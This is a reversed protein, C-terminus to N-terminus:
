FPPRPLPFSELSKSLDTRARVPDLRRRRREGARGEPQDDWLHLLGEGVPSLRYLVRRGERHSDVLGAQRLVALHYSVSSAATGLLTALGTTSRPVLLSGLLSARERGLLVELGREPDPPLWEWLPATGRAQYAVVPIGEQTTGAAVDPWAFVSAVLVVGRGGADITRDEAGAVELGQRDWRLGPHLDDLLGDVGGMVQRHAGHLVEGELLARVAPWRQALAADWYAQLEGAVRDVAQASGDVFPQLAVPPRRGLSGFRRHVAEGALAPASERWRQLEQGITRGPEEPAPLMLEFAMGTLLLATLTRLDLQGSARLAEDTWASLLPNRTSTSRLLMRYSLVAEWLPSFTLRTQRLDEASLEFRIM